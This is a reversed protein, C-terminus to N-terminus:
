VTRRLVASTEKKLQSVPKPRVKGNRDIIYEVVAGKGGPEIMSCVAKFDALKWGTPNTHCFWIQGDLLIKLSTDRAGADAPAGLAGVLIATTLAAAILRLRPM